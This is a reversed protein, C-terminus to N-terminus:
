VQNHESVRYICSADILTDCHAVDLIVARFRSSNLFVGGKARSYTAREKINLESFLLKDKMLLILVMKKEELSSGM